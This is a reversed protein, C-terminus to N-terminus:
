GKIVKKLDTLERELEKLRKQLAHITKRMEPLKPMTSNVRRFEEHPMQVFGSVIQGAAVDKHIGTKAAIMAGDGITIHGAIGAQGGVLVGKGLKVSGAIGVQAVIITNEGVVVNHGIQVLNDMKVGRQIWTRGLAGRDITCNAGIECDNDIQVTGVQSVKVNERGPNAFGFGDSGVVVGAHLIVRRGITCRRYVTVNPHLVSDEGITVDPGISVGPHIVVGREIVADRAIVAGPHITVGAAIRARPDIHAEASTGTHDAEEPYFIPLLRALAVYPDDIIILNKSTQGIDPPVIVASAATSELFRRYKPNAIFTIDGPGAEEIGRIGTIEVAGDGAIDCWLFAALERLTKRVAM